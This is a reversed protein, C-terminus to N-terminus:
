ATPNRSDILAMDPEFAVQANSNNTWILQWDRFGEVVFDFDISTGSAIAQTEVTRWTVGRNRSKQLVLSCGTGNTCYINGSFRHVGMGATMCEGPFAVSTSFLTYNNADAGPNAGSYTVRSYASPM